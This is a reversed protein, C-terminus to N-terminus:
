FLCIITLSSKNILSRNMIFYIIKKILTFCCSDCFRGKYKVFFWIFNFHYSIKLFVIMQIKSFVESTQKKAGKAFSVLEKSGTTPANSVEPPFFEHNQNQLFLLILINQIEQAFSNVGDILNEFNHYRSIM